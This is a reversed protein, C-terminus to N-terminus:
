RVNTEPRLKETLLIRINSYRLVDNAQERDAPVLHVHLECSCGNRGADRGCTGARGGCGTRRLDFRWQGTPQVQDHRPRAFGRPFSRGRLSATRGM